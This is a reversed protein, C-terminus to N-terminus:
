GVIINGDYDIEYYNDEFDYLCIRDERMIFAPEDDAYRVFIDKGFFEWQVTLDSSFRCIECEGYLIYDEGYPHVEFMEGMGASDLEIRKVISLTEPSFICLIRDFMLFLGDKHLATFSDLRAYLSLIILATRKKMDHEVEVEICKYFEGEEIIITKDYTKNDTSNKTYPPAEYIRIAYEGYNYAKIM